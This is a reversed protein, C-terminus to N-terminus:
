YRYAGTSNAISFQFLDVKKFPKYVLVIAQIITKGLTGTEVKSSELIYKLYYYYAGIWRKGYEEHTHTYPHPTPPHYLVM